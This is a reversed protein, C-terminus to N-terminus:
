DVEGLLYDKCRNKFTAVSIGHTEVEESISNFKNCMNIFFSNSRMKTKAFQPRISNRQRTNYSHIDKQLKIRECLYVPATKNVIKFMFTLGHLLRRSSMDLQQMKKRTATIHDYKRLDQICRNQVKQIKQELLNTMNQLLVDGYNFQSLVYTECLNWKAEPLLFKKFRYAHNLKGYAKSVSLNVHRTWSMSEDFTIGLNKAEYVREIAKDNLKIEGLNISKLKCLNPRSGIIMSKSKSENLKLCTRSSIYLSTFYNQPSFLYM